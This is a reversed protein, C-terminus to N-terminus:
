SIVYYYTIYERLKYNLIVFLSRSNKSLGNVWEFNCIYVDDGIAKKQRLSCKYMNTCRYTNSANWGRNWNM